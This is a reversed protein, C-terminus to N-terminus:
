IRIFQHMKSIVVDGYIVMVLSLSNMAFLRLYGPLDNQTLRSCKITFTEFTLEIRIVSNYTCEM